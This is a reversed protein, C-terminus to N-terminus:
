RRGFRVLECRLRALKGTKTRMLRDRVDRREELPNAEMDESTFQTRVCGIGACEQKFIFRTHCQMVARIFHPPTPECGSVLQPVKEDSIMIHEVPMGRHVRVSCLSQEVTKGTRKQHRRVRDRCCPLLLLTNVSQSAR